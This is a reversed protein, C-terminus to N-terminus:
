FRKSRLLWAILKYGKDCTAIVGGANNINSHPKWSHKVSDPTWNNDSSVEIILKENKAWVTVGSSLATLYVAPWVETIVHESVASGQAPADVFSGQLFIPGTPLLLIFKNTPESTSRHLVCWEKLRPTQNNIEWSVNRDAQDCFCRPYYQNTPKTTQAHTLYSIAKILNKKQCHYVPRLAAKTSWQLSCTM